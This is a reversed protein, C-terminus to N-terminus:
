SHTSGSFVRSPSLYFSSSLSHPLIVSSGPTISCGCEQTRNKISNVGAAGAFIQKLKSKDRTLPDVLQVEGKQKENRNKKFAVSQRYEAKTASVSSKPRKLGDKRQDIKGTFKYFNDM